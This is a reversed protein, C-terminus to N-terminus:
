GGATGARLGRDYATKGAAGITTEAELRRVIEDGLGNRKAGRSAAGVLYGLELAAKRDGARARDGLQQAASLLSTGLAQLDASDESVVFCHSIPEGSVTVRGPAAQLAKVLGGFDGACEPPLNTVHVPGDGGGCGALVVVIGMLATIRV